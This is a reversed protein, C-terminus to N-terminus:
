IRVSGTPRGLSGKRSQGLGMLAVDEDDMGPGAQKRRVAMSVLLIGAQQERSVNMEREKSFCFPRPGPAKNISNVRRWKCCRSSHRVHGMTTQLLCVTSSHVM